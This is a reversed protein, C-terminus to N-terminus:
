KNTEKPQEKTHKTQKNGKHTDQMNERTGKTNTMQKNGAHTEQTNKM